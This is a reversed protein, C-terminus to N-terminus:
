FAVVPVGDSVGVWWERCSAGCRWCLTLSRFCRSLSEACYGLFWTEPSGVANTWVGYGFPSKSAATSASTSWFLSSGICLPEAIGGGNWWGLWKGIEPAWCLSPGRRQRRPSTKPDHTAARAIGFRPSTHGPTVRHHAAGHRHGRDRNDRGSHGRDARHHGHFRRFRVSRDYRRSGPSWSRGSSRRHGARGSPGPPGDAGAAATAAMAATVATVAPPGPSARLAPRAPLVPQRGYSGQVRGPAALDAALDMIMRDGSMWTYEYGVMREGIMFTVMADMEMPQMLQLEFGGGQMAMASGIKEDGAMAVIMTGEPVPLGDAMANGFIFAPPVNARPADGQAAVLGLPLAILLAILAVAAMAGIRKM